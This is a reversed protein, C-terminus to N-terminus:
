SLDGRNTGDADSSSAPVRVNSRPDFSFLGVFDVQVKTRISGTPRVSSSRKGASISSPHRRRMQPRFVRIKSNIGHVVELAMAPQALNEQQASMVGLHAFSFGPRAFSRATSAPPIDIV